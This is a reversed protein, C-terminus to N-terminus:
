WAARVVVEVLVRDEWPHQALVLLGREVQVVRGDVAVERLRHAREARRPQLLHGLAERLGLGLGLGLRFGLRFGLGLGLGLGLWTVSRKLCISM